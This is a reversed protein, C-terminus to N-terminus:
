RDKFFRALPSDNAIPIARTLLDLTQPGNADWFAVLLPYNNLFHDVLGHM